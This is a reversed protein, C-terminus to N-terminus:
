RSAAGRVAADTFADAPFFQEVTLESLTVDAATGFVAATTFFSLEGLDTRLTIPLVVGPHEDWVEDRSVGPLAALEDHLEQLVPDGVLAAQRRLRGLLHASFSAFGSIRPALGDPHLSLRMVNAGLAMLEPSVGDLLLAVGPNAMVLNWHRDVVLAPFPEHHGLVLDLAMRVPEMEPAELSTRRYVPAYGAAVLLDNRERLPVDLHEAVHLVFARSPRARGTEVYSLHRTSVDALCALDLQSLRRRQRWSRLLPGAGGTPPRRSDPRDDLLTMVPGYSTSPTAAMVECTM